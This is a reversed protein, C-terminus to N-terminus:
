GRRRSPRDHSSSRPWRRRAAPGRRCRLPLADAASRSLEVTEERAATPRRILYGDRIWDGVYEQATRPLTFGADRLEDLDETVQTVFESYTLSRHDGFRSSLVAVVVPMLEARLLKVGATEGARRAGTAGAAVSVM